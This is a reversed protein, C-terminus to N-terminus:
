FINELDPQEGESLLRLRTLLRANAAAYAPYLDDSGLQALVEQFLVEVEDLDAHSLTVHLSFSRGLFRTEAQSTLAYAGDGDGAAALIQAQELDATLGDVFRDLCVVNVIAAGTMVALLLLPLWLRRM